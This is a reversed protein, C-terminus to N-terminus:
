ATRHLYSRLDRAVRHRTFQIRQKIEVTRPFKFKLIEKVLFGLRCRQLFFFVQRRTLKRPSRLQFPFLAEARGRKMPLILERKVCIFRLDRSKQLFARYPHLLLHRPPLYLNRERLRALEHSVGIGARYLVLPKPIFIIEGLLAARLPLVVDENRVNPFLDGFRRFIDMDWAHAAGLVGLNMKAHCSPDGLQPGIHGARISGSKDGNADIDYAYSHISKGKRDTSLWAAVLQETRQPLSVDDGAAVVVFDSSVMSMIKNIHATLGLNILNRNVRIIHPGSYSAVAELIAHFTGDTSADDSLIIELPSYTQALAGEVAERIFREQNYAFLTFTVLPKENEAM